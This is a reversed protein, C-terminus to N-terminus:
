SWRQILLLHAERRATPRNRKGDKEVLFQVETEPDETEFEINEQDKLHYEM